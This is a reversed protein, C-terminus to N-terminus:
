VNMEIKEGANTEIFEGNNTVIYAASNDEVVISLGRLNNEILDKLNTAGTLVIRQSLKGSYFAGSAKIIKGIEDDDTINITDISAVDDENEIKLINGKKLFQINNSNVPAVLEFTGNKFYRRIWILSEYEDVVGLATLDKNYVKIDM